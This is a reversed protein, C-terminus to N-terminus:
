ILGNDLRRGGILWDFTGYQDTARNRVGPKEGIKNTTLQFNEAENTSLRLNGSKRNTLSL